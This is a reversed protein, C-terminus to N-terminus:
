NPEQQEHQQLAELRSARGDCESEGRPFIQQVADTMEPREGRVRELGFHHGLPFTLALVLSFPLPFFLNAWSVRKGLVFSCEENGRLSFTAFNSATLAKM